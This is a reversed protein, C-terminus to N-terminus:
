PRRVTTDAFLGTDAANCSPAVALVVVSDAQEGPLLLLIGSRSSIEISRAALVEASASYGLGTLCSARRHPDSLAGLAPRQALLALIEAASLPITATPASSVTIPQLTPWSDSASDDGRLLATTGLGAATVAAAIGAWAGVRSPRPLPRRSHAPRAPAPDVSRQPGAADGAAAPEDGANMPDLRGLGVPAPVTLRRQGRRSM